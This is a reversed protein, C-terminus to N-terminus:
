SNVGVSFSIFNPAKSKCTNQKYTHLGTIRLSFQHHVDGLHYRGRVFTTEVSKPADERASHTCSLLDSDHAWVVDWSLLFIQIFLANLPSCSLFSNRFFILTLREMCPQSNRQFKVRNCESLGFNCVIKAKQLAIPNFYKSGNPWLMSKAFTNTSSKNLGVTSVFDAAAIYKASFNYPILEFTGWM